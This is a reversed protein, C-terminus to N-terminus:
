ENEAVEKIFQETRYVAGNSDIVMCTISINQNIAYALENHFKERAKAESPYAFIAQADTLIITYYM